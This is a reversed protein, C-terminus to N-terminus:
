ERKWTSAAALGDHVAGHIRQASQHFLPQAALRAAGAVALLYLLSGM